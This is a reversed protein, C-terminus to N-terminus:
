SSQKDVNNDGIMSTSKKVNMNVKELNSCLDFSAANFCHM